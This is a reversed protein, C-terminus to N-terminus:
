QTHCWPDAYVMWWGLNWEFPMAFLVKNHIGHNHLCESVQAALHSGLHGKLARLLLTQVRFCDIFYIIISSSIWYWPSYMGKLLGIFWWVLLCYWMQHLGDMSVSTSRAQICSCPHWSMDILVSIYHFWVQLITVVRQWSMAYIERVDRSVTSPSPVILKSNLDTLINILEPDSIIAYPHFQAVWLALKMCLMHPTYTSGQTFSQHSPCRPLGSPRLYWCTTHPQKYKWWTSCPLSQGLPSQSSILMMDWSYCSFLASKVYSSMDWLLGMEFLKLPKSIIMSWTRKQKEIPTTLQM